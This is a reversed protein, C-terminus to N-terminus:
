QKFLQCRPVYLAAIGVLLLAVVDLYLVGSVSAYDSIFGVALYSLPATGFALTSLISFFRGKFENAVTMQFVVHMLSWFCAVCAGLLTFVLIYIWGATTLSIALFLGASLLATLAFTPYLNNFQKRTSIIFSILVVAISLGIEIAGVLSVDAHLYDAVLLPILVFTQNLIFIYGVCLCLAAFLARDRYIMRFGARLEQIFSLSRNNGATTKTAVQISLM